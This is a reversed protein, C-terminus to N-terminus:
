SPPTYKVFGLHLKCWRHSDSYASSSIIYKGKIFNTPVDKNEFFDYFDDIAKTLIMEGSISSPYQVSYFGKLSDCCIDFMIEAYLSSSSSYFDKNQNNTYNFSEYESDDIMGDYIKRFFSSKPIYERNDENKNNCWICWDKNYETNYLDKCIDPQFIYKLENIYKNCSCKLPGGYTRFFPIGQKMSIFYWRNHVSIAQIPIIDKLSSSFYNIADYEEMSDCWYSSEPLYELNKLLQIKDEPFYFKNIIHYWGMTIFGLKSLLLLVSDDMKDLFITSNLWSEVIDFEEISLINSCDISNEEIDIVCTNFILNPYKKIMKTTIIIKKHIEGNIKMFIEYEM